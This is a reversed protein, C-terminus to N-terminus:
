SHNELQEILSRAEQILDGSHNEASSAYQLVEYKELLKQVAESEEANFHGSRLKEGVETSTIATGQLNLINGLYHRVISSLERIRDRLDEAPRLADLQQLAQKGAGHRRSFAIDHKLRQRHQHRWAYILFLMPPLVMGLGYLASAGKAFHPGEFIEAGTHIPLIDEGLKKIANGEPSAKGSETPVINLKSDGKGPLVNLRPRSTQIAVYEAKDPDFYTLTVSPVQLDGPIQPVLAFTYIREGAIAPGGNISHFESQDEYARFNEGWDPSPLALDRINGRGAVTVTLTVTDGIEIEARSLRASIEFEGVLNSFDAPRNKKPLPQVELPIAETLMTKHTLTAFNNFLSGQGFPNFPDASQRRNASDVQDFEIRSAPIELAGPRLPFLTTTFEFVRYRIGNVDQTTRAPGKLKEERFGPYQLHAGLNRLEVRHFVRLTATVQQQVYPKRHSVQLEVLVDRSTHTTKSPQRVVLTIPQTHYATGDIVLTASRVTFTGTSKPILLFRYTVSSTRAGNIIQLSSSSGRPRVRFGDLAPLEPPPASSTGKVTISLNVSEELTLERQDVTASVQIDASAAATVSPFGLLLAFVFLGAASAFFNIFLQSPSKGTKTM